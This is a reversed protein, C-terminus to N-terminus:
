RRLRVDKLQKTREWWRVGEQAQEAWRCVQKKLQQMSAFEADLAAKEAVLKAKKKQVHACVCVGIGCVGDNSVHDWKKLCM